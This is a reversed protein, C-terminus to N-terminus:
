GGNGAAAGAVETVAKTALDFRYRKGERQFEFSRSDEAWQPTVAGSVISSALRPANAAYQAYGPMERLRDQALLASPALLLVLPLLLRTSM